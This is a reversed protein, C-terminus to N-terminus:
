HVDYTKEKHLGYKLFQEEEYKRKRLALTFPVSTYPNDSVYEEEISKKQSQPFIKNIINKLKDM